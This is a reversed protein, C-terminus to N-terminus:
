IAGPSVPFAPSQSSSEQTETGSHELPRACHPTLIWIPEIVRDVSDGLGSDDGWVRQYLMRAVARLMEVPSTSGESFAQSQKFGGM